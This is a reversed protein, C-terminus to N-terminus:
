TIKRLEEMVVLHGGGFDFAEVSVRDGAKLTGLVELHKKVLQKWRESENREAQILIEIEKGIAQRPNKARNQKWTKGTSAVKLLFGRQGKKVIVGQLMGKFGRIGQPLGGAEREGEGDVGGERRREGDGERRREGDGERRREGDGERRREGDGERRRRGEGERRRESDVERRRDGEGERRRDGESAAASADRAPRGLERRLNANVRRMEALEGEMRALRVAIEALIKRLQGMEDRRDAAARRDGEGAISPAEGERRRDGEGERKREGERKLEGERRRDGEGERKREGERRRDGEGERKREVKRERQGERESDEAQLARAPIMMALMATLLITTAYKM